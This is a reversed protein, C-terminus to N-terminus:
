ASLVLPNKPGIEAAAQQAQAAVPCLGFALGGILAIVYAMVQFYAGFHKPLRGEQWANSKPLIPAFHRIFSRM